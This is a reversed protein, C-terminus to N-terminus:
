RVQRSYLVTCFQVVEKVAAPWSLLTKLNIYLEVLKTPTTQRFGEEKKVPLRLQARSCERVRSVPLLFSYSFFIKMIFVKSVM